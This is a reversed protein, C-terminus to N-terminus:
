GSVDPISLELDMGLGIDRKNWLFKVVKEVTERAGKEGVFFFHNGDIAATMLEPIETVFKQTQKFRTRGSAHTPVPADEGQQCYDDIREDQALRNMTRQIMLFSWTAKDTFAHRLDLPSTPYIAAMPPLNSFDHAKGDEMIQWEDVEQVFNGTDVDYRFGSTTLGIPTAGIYDKKYIAPDIIHRPSGNEVNEQLHRQEELQRLFKGELSKKTTYGAATKDFHAKSVAPLIGPLAPTAALSVFLEVKIGFKKAQVTVPQLLKGGMSWALVIIKKSLNHTTIVSDIVAATQKGWEHITFNPSVASMLPQESELPYSIGLFDYGRCNFWHALFDEKRHGEHGGYSIRAYHAMGPIFVVLPKTNRKAPLYKHIVPHDGRTELQEGEFLPM